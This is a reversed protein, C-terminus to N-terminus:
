KNSLDTEKRYWAMLRRGDPFELIYSYGFDNFNCIRYFRAFPTTRRNKLERYDVRIKNGTGYVWESLIIYDVARPSDKGEQDHSSVYLERLGGRSDIFRVATNLSFIEKVNKPLLKVEEYIKIGLPKVSRTRIYTGDMFVLVYTCLGNITPVEYLQARQLLVREVLNDGSYKRVYIRKKLEAPSGRKGRRYVLDMYNVVPDFSHRHRGKSYGVVEYDELRKCEDDAYMVRMGPPFLERILEPPFSLLEQAINNDDGFSCVILGDSFIRSKGPAITYIDFPLTTLFSRGNGGARVAGTAISLVMM